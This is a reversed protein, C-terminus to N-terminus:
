VVGKMVRPVFPWIWATTKLIYHALASTSIVKNMAGSIGTEKFIYMLVATILVGELLMFFAGLIKNLTRVFPIKFILQLFRDALYFLFIVLRNILIFLVVFSLIRTFSIGWGTWRSLWNACLLYLQTAGFLGVMIAILSSLSKILGQKYGKWICGALFIVIIIDLVGFPM